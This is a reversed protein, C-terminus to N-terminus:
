RNYTTHKKIIRKTEKNWQNPKLVKGRNLSIEEISNSLVNGYNYLNQQHELSSNEETIIGETNIAILPGINCLGDQDFKRNKGVYTAVIDLPRLDVTLSEELDKANGEKFLKLHSDLERLGYFYESQSYRKINDLYDEIIGLKIIENLHYQDYSIKFVVRNKGKGQTIYNNIYNLLRLFELSYYTGNITMSVQDLIIKNKIIYYFISEMQKTALTPEGGCICLNGISTIQDLTAKIVEDSITKNDKCGRLCHMCNLNCKNTVIFSLNQVYIKNMIGMVGM